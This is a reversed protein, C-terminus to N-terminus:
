RDPVYSVDDDFNVEFIKDSMKLHSPSTPDVVFSCCIYEKPHEMATTKIKLFLSATMKTVRIHALKPNHM